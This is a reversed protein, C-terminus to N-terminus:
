AAQKTEKRRMGSIATRRRGRVEKGRSMRRSKKSMLM